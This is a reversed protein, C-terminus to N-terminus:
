PNSTPEPSATPTPEPSPSPEPSPQVPQPGTGKLFRAPVAKYSSNFVQENRLKGDQDFVKYTATAKGGPHPKEVQKVEGTPLDGTEVYVDPPPATSSLLKPGIIESRRGDKTGYFEFTLSDGQIFGQILIWGPTDNKIKLDPKPLYVTADLGVPPEYYRIRWSHNQREAIPLGSNLAARFLTTSVQCLGGGFEPLTQNEKIVLEPLYGTTDDIQGLQDVTSFVEGPRILIGNLFRSGNGINHKRNSPSGKFSTTAKGVLEKIGLDNVSETTVGPKKVEVPIELTAERHYLKSKILSVSKEKDLTKGEQSSTFVSVREGELKLRAERLPQDVQKAIKKVWDRIKDESLKVALAKGKGGPLPDATEFNIFSSIENRDIIFEEGAASVALKHALLENIERKADALGERYVTPELTEVTLNIPNSVLRGLRAELEQKLLARDIGQGIKEPLEVVETDTIKLSADAAPDDTVKAVRSVYEDLKAQDFEVRLAVKSGKVFYAIRNGSGFLDDLTKDIEFQVNLDSATVPWAEEGLSVAIQADRYELVAQELAGKAQGRSMGGLMLEGIRVRPPVKDAYALELGLAGVTAAIILAVPLLVTLKQRGTLRLKFNFSAM